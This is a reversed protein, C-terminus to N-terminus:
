ANLTEQGSFGLAGHAMVAVSANNGDWFQRDGKRGIWFLRSLGNMVM